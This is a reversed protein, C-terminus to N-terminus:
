ADGRRGSRPAPLYGGRSEIIESLPETLRQSDANAQTELANTIYQQAIQFNSRQIQPDGSLPMTINAALHFIVAQLLDNDWEAPNDTAKTYTLVAGPCNTAIVRTTGIRDFTFDADTISPGGSSVEASNIHRAAIMGAPIAYAYRWPLPPDAATWANAFDNEAVLALAATHRLTPWYAKRFVYDRSPLYWLRLQAAEVSVDSTSSLLRRGGAQTLAANYVALIDM